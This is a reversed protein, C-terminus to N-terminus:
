AIRVHSDKGKNAVPQRNYYYICLGGVRYMAVEQALQSGGLRQLTILTGRRWSYPLYNGLLNADVCITRLQSRFKIDTLPKSQDATLFVTQNYADQHM